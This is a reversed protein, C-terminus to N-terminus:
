SSNRAHFQVLGPMPDKEVATLHMRRQALAEGLIAKFAHAVSGSARVQQLEQASFFRSLLRTLAFFRSAVLDHVYTDGLHESLAATFSAVFAQPAASRYTSTLVASLDMGPAFIRDRLAEPVLGYLADRLLHKGIDAGSGEDGLIYGLSPMPTHLFKGDYHGVNMGTGLILVLGHEKGYLGRATGLLDSEVQIKTNPWVMALAARVQEARTKTGCGAGYAIVELAEEGIADSLEKGRLAGQMAAPDGTVPNYGPFSRPIVHGEGGSVIAWRSSSGGIDGILLPM